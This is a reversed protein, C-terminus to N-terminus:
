NASCWIVRCRKWSCCINHFLEFKYHMWINRIIWELNVDNSGECIKLVKVRLTNHDTNINICHLTRDTDLKQHRWKYLCLFLTFISHMSTHRDWVTQTSRSRVTDKEKQRPKHTDTKTQWNTDTQTRAQWRSMSPWWLKGVSFWQEVIENEKWGNRQIM